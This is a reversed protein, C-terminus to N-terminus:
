APVFIDCPFDFSISTEINPTRWAECAQGELQVTTESLMRWGNAPDFPVPAGNVIVRAREGLDQRALDVQVGDEGLDFTCSKVNALATRIQNTLAAQDSPDPRYVPATGGLTADAAYDGITQGRVAPKGTTAFDASWGAVVSCQDYISNPDYNQNDRALPAVPQGAGANAFGQLVSPLITTNESTIGFVLTQIPKTATGDPAIGAALRQLLGVVSDPPCLNNGNDCYDPEGDTVFLIYKDGETTDSRLIEAVRSLALLTPTEDDEPNEPRELPEYLTAIADYNDLAPPVNPVNLACEQNPLTQGSFAAFGFRVNSQLERMVELAGTRLANWATVGSGASIEQFMTGSRDVLMFVTPINPVFSRQAQQCGAPTVTEGIEEGLDFGSSGGGPAPPLTAGGGASPTPTGGGGGPTPEQELITQGAGGGSASCGALSSLGLGISTICWARYM